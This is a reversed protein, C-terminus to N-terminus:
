CPAIVMRDLTEFSNKAYLRLARDNEPRVFLMARRGSEEITGCLRHLLYDGLGQGRWRPVTYLGGIQWYYLGYANIMARAVLEDSEFIGYQLFQELRRACQQELAQLLPGPALEEQLVEEAYYAQELPLLRAYHETRLRLLKLGSPLSYVKCQEAAPPRAKRVMMWYERAEFSFDYCSCLFEYHSKTGIFQRTVHRRLLRKLEQVALPSLPEECPSAKLSNRLALSDFLLRGRETWLLLAAMGSEPEGAATQLDRTGQAFARCRAALQEAHFLQQQKATEHQQAVFLSSLHLHQWESSRLFHHLASRPHLSPHSAARLYDQLPLWQKRRRLGNM